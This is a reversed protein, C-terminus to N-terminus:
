RGGDRPAALTCVRRDYKFRGDGRAIKTYRHRLSDDPRGRWTFHNPGGHRVTTHDPRLQACLSRRGRGGRVGVTLCDIGM